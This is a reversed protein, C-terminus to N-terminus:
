IYQLDLKYYDVMTDDQIGVQLVGNANMGTLLNGNGNLTPLTSLDWVYTKDQNVWQVNELSPGSNGTGFYGGWASPGGSGLGIADNTSLGGLARVHLTLTANVIGCRRDFTFKHGVPNNPSSNDFTGYLNPLPDVPKASFNDIFGAIMPKPQSFDCQLTKPNVTVVDISEVNAGGATYVGVTDLENLPSQIVVFGTALSPMPMNSMSLISAIDACDIEFAEDPKLSYRVFNSINGKIPGEPLAIVVKKMFNATTVQPNHVNIATAYNGNLVPGRNTGNTAGCVFKASYAFTNVQSSATNVQQTDSQTAQSSATNVALVALLGLVLLLGGAYLLKKKNNM